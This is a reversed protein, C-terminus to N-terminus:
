CTIRRRPYIVDIQATGSHLFSTLHVDYTCRKVLIFGTFWKSTFTHCNILMWFLKLWIVFLHHQWGSWKLAKGIAIVKCTKKEKRTPDGYPQDFYNVSAYHRSCTRAEYLPSAFYNFIFIWSVYKRIVTPMHKGFYLIEKYLFVYEM